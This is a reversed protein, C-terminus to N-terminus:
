RKGKPTYYSLTSILHLTPNSTGDIISNLIPLNNIINKITNKIVKSIKFEKQEVIKSNATKM